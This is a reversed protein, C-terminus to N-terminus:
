KGWIVRCKWYSRASRRSGFEQSGTYIFYVNAWNDNLFCNEPQQFCVYLTMNMPHSIYM